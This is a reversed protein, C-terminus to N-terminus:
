KVTIVSHAVAAFSRAPAFGHDATDKAMCQHNVIQSQQNTEQNDIPSQQISVLASAPCQRLGACASTRYRSRIASSAVAAAKASASRRPGASPAPQLRVRSARRRDCLASPAVDASAVTRLFRGPSPQRDAFRASEPAVRQSSRIARRAGRPGQPEDDRTQTHGSIARVPRARDPRARGSSVNRASAPRTWSRPSGGRNM